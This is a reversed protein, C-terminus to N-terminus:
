FYYLASSIYITLFILYAYTINKKKYIEIKETNFFNQGIILNLIFILIYKIKINILNDFLKLELFNPVFFFIFFFFSIYLNKKFFFIDRIFYNM